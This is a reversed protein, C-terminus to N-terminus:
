DLKKKKQKHKNVLRRERLFRGVVGDARVLAGPAAAGDARRASPAWQSGAKGSRAGRETPPNFEEKAISIAIAAALAGSGVDACAGM